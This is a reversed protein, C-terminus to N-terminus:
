KCHTFLLMEYVQKMKEFEEAKLLDIMYKAKPNQIIEEVTLCPKDGTVMRLGEYSISCTLIIKTVLEPAIEALKM